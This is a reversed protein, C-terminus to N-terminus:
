AQVNLVIFEQFNTQLIVVTGYYFIFKLKAELMPIWTFIPLWRKRLFLEDSRLPLIAYKDHFQRHWQTSHNQM